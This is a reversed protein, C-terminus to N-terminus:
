NKEFTPVFEWINIKFHILKFKSKWIFAYVIWSKLYDTEGM